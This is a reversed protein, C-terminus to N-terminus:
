EQKKSDGHVLVYMRTWIKTINSTLFSNASASHVLMMETDKSVIHYSNACGSLPMFDRQQQLHLLIFGTYNFM